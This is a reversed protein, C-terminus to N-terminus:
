WGRFCERCEQLAIDCSPRSTRAHRLSATVQHALQGERGGARGASDGVQVTLTVRHLRRLRSATPRIAEGVPASWTWVLRASCSRASRMMCANTAANSDRPKATRGVASPTRTLIRSSPRPNAMSSPVFFISCAIVNVSCFSISRPM